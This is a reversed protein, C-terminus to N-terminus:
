QSTSSGKTLSKIYAEVIQQEKQLDEFDLNYYKLLLGQIVGEDIPIQNMTKKEPDTQYLVVGSAAMFKMFAMIAESDQQTAHLKELGPTEPEPPLDLDMSVQFDKMIKALEANVLEISRMFSRDQAPTLQLRYTSFITAMYTMQHLMAGVCTSIAINPLERNLVRLETAPNIPQGSLVGLLERVEPRDIFPPAVGIRMNLKSSEDVKFESKIASEPVGVQLLLNVLEKTRDSIVGDLVPGQTVADPHIVEAMRSLFTKVAEAVEPKM